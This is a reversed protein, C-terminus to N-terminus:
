IQCKYQPTKRLSQAVLMATFPNVDDTLLIHHSFIVRLTVLAVVCMGTYYKKAPAHTCVKMLRHLSTEWGNVM